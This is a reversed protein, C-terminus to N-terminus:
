SILLGPAQKVTRYGRNNQRWGAEASAEAPPAPKGSRQGAGSGVALGFWDHWKVRSCNALGCMSRAIAAAPGRSPGEPTAPGAIVLDRYIAPPSTLRM